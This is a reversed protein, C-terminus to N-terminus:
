SLVATAIRSWELQDLSFHRSTLAQNGIQGLFEVENGHHQAREYRGRAFSNFLRFLQDM